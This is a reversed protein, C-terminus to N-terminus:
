SPTAPPEQDPPAPAEVPPAAQKITNIESKMAALETGQNRITDNLSRITKGAKLRGPVSFLYAVLLGVVFFGMFVVAVPIEPTAYAKAVLNLHFVKKAMFFGKNQYIVLGIFAFILIWIVIKFKKM